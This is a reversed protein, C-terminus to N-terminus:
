FRYRASVAFGQWLFRTGDGFHIGPRWDISLTLPFRFNYEGGIQGVVAFGFGSKNDAKNYFGLSIGPGAYFNFDKVSTFIFDYIGSLYFGHNYGTLGLDVELFNPSNFSHQYSAEIGWAARLGISRPQAAITATTLLLAIAILLRKM